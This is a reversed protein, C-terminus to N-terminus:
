LFNGVIPANIGRFTLRTIITSPLRVYHRSSQCQGAVADGRHSWSAASGPGVEVAQVSRVDRRAGNWWRWGRWVIHPFFWLLNEIIIGFFLVFFQLTIQSFTKLYMLLLHFSQIKKLFCLNLLQKLFSKKASQESVFVSLFFLNSLTTWEVARSCRKRSRVEFAPEEEAAPKSAVAPLNHVFLTNPLNPNGGKVNQPLFRMTMGPQSGGPQYPMNMQFVVPSFFWNGSIFFALCFCYFPAESFAFLCDILRDILQDHLCAISCDISRDIWQDISRVIWLMGNQWIICRPVDFNISIGSEYWLIPIISWIIEWEWRCRARM